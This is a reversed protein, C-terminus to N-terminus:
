FYRGSLDGAPWRKVADATKRVELDIEGYSLSSPDDQQNFLVTWTLGSSRRSLLTYTGPLNGTHWVDRGGPVPRVEWGLGYYLGKQSSWAEPEALARAVSARSLVPTGGDYVRAFRDLDVASALWGGHSDMNDLNFVGYPGTVERGSTDMVTKAKVRSAYPVEGPARELTRGLRMRTIKLPDLVKERVLREYGAGGVREIIRGLLLYGYNSYAYRLGPPDDLKLGTVQTIIHERRIPLPVGLDAAIQRDNFMPDASRERNWGGEHRLLHLVTIDRLRPDTKKGPPPSLDLLDTLRDTLRLRGEQVLRLVATATVPKSISAIRFLSTPQTNLSPDASYTYGRALVLRGRRSVALAGCSIGRARMFGELTANFGELGPLSSGSIRWVREAVRPRPKPGACGALVLGTTLGTASLLDRRTPM